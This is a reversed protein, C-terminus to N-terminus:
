GSMKYLAHFMLQKLRLARRMYKEPERSGPTWGVYAGIDLNTWAAAHLAQCGGVRGSHLGYLSGPLGAKDFIKIQHARM